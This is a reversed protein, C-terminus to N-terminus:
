FMNNWFLSVINEFRTGFCLLVTNEFCIGLLASNVFRIGLPLSVTHEFRLGFCPLM